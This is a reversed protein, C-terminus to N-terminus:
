ILSYVNGDTSGVYITGNSVVPSSLTAGASMMQQVGGVL